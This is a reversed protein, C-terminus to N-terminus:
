DLPLAYKSFLTLSIHSWFKLIDALLDDGFPARSSSAGFPLNEGIRRLWHDENLRLVAFPQSGIGNQASAGFKPIERFRASLANILSTPLRLTDADLAPKVFEHLFRWSARLSAIENRLQLLEKASKKAKLFSALYDKTAEAVKEIYAFFRESPELHASASSREECLDAISCVFQALSAADQVLQDSLPLM